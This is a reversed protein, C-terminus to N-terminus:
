VFSLYFFGMCSIKAQSSTSHDSPELSTSNGVQHLHLLPRKTLSTESPMVLGKIEGHCQQLRRPGNLFRIIFLNPQVKKSNIRWYDFKIRTPRPAIINPKQCKKHLSDLQSNQVHYWGNCQTCKSELWHFTLKLSLCENWLIENTFWQIQAKMWKPGFSIMFTEIM